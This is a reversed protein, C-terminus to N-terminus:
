MGDPLYMAPLPEDTENQTAWSAVRWRNEDYYLSVSSIGRDFEAGDPSIRMEYTSWVHALNGFQQVIRHVEVEYFGEKWPETIM